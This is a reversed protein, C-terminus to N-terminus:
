AGDKVIDTVPSDKEIPPTAEIAAKTVVANSGMFGGVTVSICLAVNSDMHGTLATIVTVALGGWMAWFKRGGALM